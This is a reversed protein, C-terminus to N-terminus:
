PGTAYNTTAAVGNDNHNTKVVADVGTLLDPKIVFTYEPPQEQGKVFQPLSMLIHTFLISFLICSIQKMYFPIEEFSFNQLFGPL